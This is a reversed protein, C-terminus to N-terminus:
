KKICYPDHFPRLEFQTKNNDCAKPYDGLVITIMPISICIIIAIVCGIMILIDKIKSM